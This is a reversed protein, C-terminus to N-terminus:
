KTEEFDGPRDESSVCNRGKEKARLLQQDAFRFFTEPTDALALEACGISVSMGIPGSEHKLPNKEVARRIREALGAAAEKNSEPMLVAFEDGGWRACIESARCCSELVRALHILVKDGVDHGYKDNTGKFEDADVILLSLPRGYRRSQDICRDQHSLFQHRNELGTLADRTAMAYLLEDQEVEKEDRIFFGLVTSGIQIRDRERLRKREEVMEGNLQTGNRSGMDEIYCVPEEDSMGANECIIRAHRRSALEDALPIQAASSRGIVLEAELIEFRAGRQPGDVCMLLPLYTRAEDVHKQGPRYAPKTNEDSIGSKNVAM